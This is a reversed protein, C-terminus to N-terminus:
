VNVESSGVVEDLHYCRGLNYSVSHDGTAEAYSMLNRYAMKKDEPSWVHDFDLAPWKKEFARQKPTYTSWDMGVVAAAFPGTTDHSRIFGSRNAGTDRLMELEMLNNMGLLHIPKQGSQYYLQNVLKRRNRSRRETRNLSELEPTPGGVTFDIDYPVGIVDVFDLDKWMNYSEMWEIETTGQAVAMLRPGRDMDVLYDNYFKMSAEYTAEKDQLVDPLILESPRIDLVLDWLDKGSMGTGLEDAANDLIVYREKTRLFDRYLSNGMALHALGYKFAGVNLNFDSFPANVATKM